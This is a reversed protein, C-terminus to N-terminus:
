PATILSTSVYQVGNITGAGNDATPDWDCMGADCQDDIYKSIANVAAATPQEGATNGGINDADPGDDFPVNIFRFVDNGSSGFIADNPNLGQAFDIVIVDNGIGGDVIDDGAGGAVTDNGFGGEIQDNGNDGTLSDNGSGGDIVDDDDGGSITDNGAGGSLTDNGAGGILVNAASNGTLIDASGSGTVNSFGSIVDGNADSTVGAVADGATNASLDVAVGAPSHAYSLTDNDGGGTLTDAGALGEITDNGAGGNINDAFASGTLNDNGGNGLVVVGKGAFAGGGTFTTSDITDDGSSGDVFEFDINTVKTPGPGTLHLEDGRNGQVNGAKSDFTEGGTGGSVFADLGDSTIIDTGMGGSVSDKGSGGDLVDNGDGGTITDNNAGGLISDNGTGGDLKDKQAGGVLTDNGAGGEMWVPRNTLASADVSDNGSGTVVHFGAYTTGPFEIRALAIDGATVSGGDMNLNGDADTYQYSFVTDFSANTTLTVTTAATDDGDVRFYLSTGIAEFSYGADPNVRQELQEFFLPRHTQMRVKNRSM